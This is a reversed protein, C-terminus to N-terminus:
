HKVEFQYVNSEMDGHYNAADKLAAELSGNECWKYAAEWLASINIAEAMKVSAIPDAFADTNSISKGIELNQYIVSRMNSAMSKWLWEKDSYEFLLPLTDKQSIMNSVVLEKFAEWQKCRPTLTFADVKARRTFDLCIEALIKTEM